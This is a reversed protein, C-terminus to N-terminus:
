ELHTFFLKWVQPHPILRKTCIIHLLCSEKQLESRFDPGGASTQHHKQTPQSAKSVLGRLLSQARKLWVMEFDLYGEGAKGTVYLSHPEERKEM